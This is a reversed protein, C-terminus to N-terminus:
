ERCRYQAERNNVPSSYFMLSQLDLGREATM